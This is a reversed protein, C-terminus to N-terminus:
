QPHIINGRHLAEIYFTSLMKEHHNHSTLIIDQLGNTLNTKSLKQLELVLNYSETDKFAKIDDSIDLPIKAGTLSSSLMLERRLYTDPNTVIKNLVEIGIKTAKLMHKTGVTRTGEGTNSNYSLKWYNNLRQSRSADLLYPPIQNSTLNCEIRSQAM